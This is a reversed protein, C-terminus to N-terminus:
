KWNLELNKLIFLYFCRDKKHTIKIKYQEIIKCSNYKVIMQARGSFKNRSNLINDNMKISKFFYIINVLYTICIIAADIENMLRFVVNLTNLVFLNYNHM